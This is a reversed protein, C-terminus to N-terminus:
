EKSEVLNAAQEEAIVLQEEAELDKLTEHM